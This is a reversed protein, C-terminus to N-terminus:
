GSLRAALGEVALGPASLIEVSADAEPHMQEVVRAMSAQALVITDVRDALDELGARILRDHRDVDGSKLADFAGDCLRTSIEVTRGHLLARRRVLETTPELTTTLTALVGIRSASEVARDAMAEDVRLIPLASHSALRDVAPGLSSCTVMTLDAGWETLAAIHQALRSETEKSIAGLRITESLLSEDVVSSTEVRSLLSSALEDFVPGLSAVTHVFALRRTSIETTSPGSAQAMSM